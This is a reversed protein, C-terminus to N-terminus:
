SILYPLIEGFHIPSFCRFDAVKDGEETQSSHLFRSTESQGDGEIEATTEDSPIYTIQFSVKLSPAEEACIMAM